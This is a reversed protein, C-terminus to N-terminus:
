TRRYRHIAIPALVAAIAVSWIVSTVVKGATPGGAMCARAADTAASVPQHEAWWELWGPMTDTPVFANSLFSLPILWIIGASQAVQVSRVTLGVFCSVWIMAYALSVYGVIIPRDAFLNLIGMMAMALVAVGALLGTSGVHGWPTTDDHEIRSAAVVDMAM